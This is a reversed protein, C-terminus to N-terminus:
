AKKELEHVQSRDFLHCVPFFEKENEENDNETNNQLKQPKAWVLFSTEGRKVSFGKKKWEDFTNLETVQATERYYDVLFENVTRPDGTVKRLTQFKKSLQKLEQRKEIAKKMKESNFEKKM